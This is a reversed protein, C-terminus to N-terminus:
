PPLQDDIIGDLNLQGNGFRIRIRDRTIHPSPFEEMRIEKEIELFDLPIDLPDPPETILEYFHPYDDWLPFNYPYNVVINNNVTIVGAIGSAVSEAEQKVLVSNVTGTLTVVGDSVDVIIQWLETVANNLLANRLRAEILSDTPQIGINDLKVEIKNTVSIVGTTNEALKEAAIKAKLNNVTGRLAVHGDTAEPIIDFPSVRPDYRAAEEIAKEIEEDAATVYMKERLHEDREQWKVELNTSDVSKVGAVWATLYANHKEAASGVIGSLEVEGNSVSVDIMRDDVKVIWELARKIENIIATDDRDRKYDVHISNYIDVVGEASMAVYRCLEKAQYSDVTGSLTVFRNEVSVTIDYLSTAPDAELANRVRKEIGKDSLVVPPDVSILNSVSRVGKISRAIKAAREKAKLNTVSGTLKVIGDVVNIEIQNVNITHDARYEYEIADAIDNDDRQPLTVTIISLLIVPLIMAKKM